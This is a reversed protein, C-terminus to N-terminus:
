FRYLSRDDTGQGSIIGYLRDLDDRSFYEVLLQGRDFSGKLTVKTGLVNIFRQEIAVLDPDRKAQGSDGPSGGASKKPSAASDDGAHEGLPHAAEREADRVSLGQSLIRSFLAGQAAPDEVQLLARAHGASLVGEAVASRIHEPLKLLRLANAVTSRKKGVRAALEEQTLGSLEMLRGYAAAEEIPNLDERQVNEILAIELKKSDDINTIRVPIKALGALKAARARREGAIIYFRGDGAEEVLVSQLVGNERISAALESLAEEDFHRRPQFPNPLLSDVPALLTGGDGQELGPPIDPAAPGPDRYGDQLLADLGRGLASRAV